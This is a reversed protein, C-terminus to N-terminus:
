SSARTKKLKARCRAIVTLPPIRLLTWTPSFIAVNRQSFPDGNRPRPSAGSASFARGSRGAGLAGRQHGERDRGQCGPCVVALDKHAVLHGAIARGAAAVPPSKLHGCRHEGILSSVAAFQRRAGGAPRPHQPWPGDDFTLVVEGPQLFDHQLIERDFRVTPPTSRSPAPCELAVPQGQCSPAAAPVRRGRPAPLRWGISRDNGAQGPHVGRGVLPCRHRRPQPGAYQPRPRPATAPGM